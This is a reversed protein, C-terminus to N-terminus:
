RALAERQCACLFPIEGSIRCWATHQRVEEGFRGCKGLHGGKSLVTSCSMPVLTWHWKKVHLRHEMSWARSDMEFIWHLSPSQSGQIANRTFRTVKILFKTAAIALFCIWLDLRGMEMLLCSFSLWDDHIVPQVHQLTQIKPFFSIRSMGTSLDCRARKHSYSARSALCLSILQTRLWCWMANSSNIPCWLVKVIADIVDHKGSFAFSNLCVAALAFFESM